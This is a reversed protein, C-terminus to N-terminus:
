SYLIAEIPVGSKSSSIEPHLYLSKVFLGDQELLQLCPPGYLPLSKDMTLVRSLFHPQSKFGLGEDQLVIYLEFCIEQPDALALHLALHQLRLPWFPVIRTHSAGAVSYPGLCLHWYCGTHIVIVICYPTHM